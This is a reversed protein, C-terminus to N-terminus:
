ARGAQVWGRQVPTSDPLILWDTPQSPLIMGSRGTRSDRLGEMSVLGKDFLAVLKGFAQWDHLTFRAQVTRMAKAYVIGLKLWRADERWHAMQRCTGELEQLATRLKTYRWGRPAIIMPDACRALEACHHRAEKLSQQHKSLIEAETLDSM